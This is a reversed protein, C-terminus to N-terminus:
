SVKLDTQWDRSFIDSVFGLVDESKGNSLIMSKAKYQNIVINALDFSKARALWRASAALALLEKDITLLKECQSISQGLKEIRFFLPIEADYCYELTMVCHLFLKQRRADKKHRDRITKAAPLQSHHAVGPVARSWMSAEILYPVLSLPKGRRVATLMPQIDGSKQVGICVKEWQLELIAAKHLALTEAHKVLELAQELSGSLRSAKIKGLVASVSTEENAGKEALEYKEIAMGSFGLRLARNALTLAYFEKKPNEHRSHFSAQQQKWLSQWAEGQRRNIQSMVMNLDGYLFSLKSRIFDINQMKLLALGMKEMSSIEAATLGGHREHQVLASMIYIYSRLPGVKDHKEGFSINAKIHDLREASAKDPFLQDLESQLEIHTKEFLEYTWPMTKL